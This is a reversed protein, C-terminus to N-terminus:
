AGRDCIVSTMLAFRRASARYARLAEVQETLSKLVRETPLLEGEARWLALHSLAHALLARFEGETLRSAPQGALVVHAEHPLPVPAATLGPPAQAPHLTVPVDLGLAASAQDAAAYWEPWSAREIPCATKLLEQRAAEAVGDRAAPSAFQQWARPEHRRLCD